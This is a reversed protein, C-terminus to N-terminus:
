DLDLKKALMYESIFYLGACGALTLLISGVLLTYLSPFLTDSTIYNYYGFTVISILITSGFQIIVYELIYWFIAGMIKHRPFMQGLSIAAYILLMNFLSSSIIYLFGLFAVAFPHLGYDALLAWFGDWVYPIWSFVTVVDLDLYIFEGATLLIAVSSLIVFGTILNWLSSVLLKSLIILRPTVPLTNTLYGEDTYINKYFRIAAYVSVGISGAFLAIYYFFLSTGLLAEIPSSDITWLPSVMSMVGLLTLIGIGLNIVAPVKWFFKWDYKLLKKLM